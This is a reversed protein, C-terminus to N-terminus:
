IREVTCWEVLEYLLREGRKSDAGGGAVREAASDQRLFAFFLAQGARQELAVGKVVVLRQGRM